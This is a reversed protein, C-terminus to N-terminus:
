LRPSVVYGRHGGSATCRHVSRDFTHMFLYFRLFCPSATCTTCPANDDRHCQDGDTEAPVARAGDFLLIRFYSEGHSSMSNIGNEGQQQRQENLNRLVQQFPVHNGSAGGSVPTAPLLNISPAALGLSGGGMGPAALSPGFSPIQLSTSASESPIFLQPPSNPKQSNQQQQQQQQQQNRWLLDSDVTDFALKDFAESVGPTPQRAMSSFSSARSRAIHEQEAPLGASSAPSPASYDPRPSYARPPLSGNSPFDISSYSAQSRDMRKSSSFTHNLPIEVPPASGSLFDHPLRSSPGGLAIDGDLVLFPSNSNSYSGHADFDAPNYDLEHLDAPEDTLPNGEPALSSWALRPSGSPTFSDRYNPTYPFGPSTQVSTIDISDWPTSHLTSQDLSGTPPNSAADLSHHTSTRRSHTKFTASSASSQHLTAAAAPDADPSSHAVAAASM